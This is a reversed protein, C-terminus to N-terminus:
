ENPVDRTKVSNWGDVAEHELFDKTEKDNTYFVVPLDLRLGREVDKLGSSSLTRMTPRTVEGTELFLKIARELEDKRLKGVSPVGIDDAFEKLETALWYGNEFEKLTMSPTLKTKSKM